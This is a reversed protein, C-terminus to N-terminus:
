PLPLPPSSDISNTAAYEEDDDDYEEDDDNIGAPSIEPLLSMIEAAGRLQHGPVNARRM